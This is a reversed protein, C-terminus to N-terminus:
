VDHSVTSPVIAVDEAEVRARILKDKVSNRFSVSQRTFPRKVSSVNLPSEKPHPPAAARPFKSPIVFKGKDVTSTVTTVMIPATSLTCNVSQTDHRSLFHRTPIQLSALVIWGVGLGSIKIKSKKSSSSRKPM